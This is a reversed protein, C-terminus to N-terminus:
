VKGLLSYSTFSLGISVWAIFGYGGFIEYRSSFFGFGLGALITAANLGLSQFSDITARMSSDLRHHMYGTALPDVAGSFLFILIIVYLSSFNHVASIYFFGATFVFAVGLVLVRYSVRTKILQVLLNGPLRLFLTAASFLGFYVVPIGLRELYLQWFEDIFNLAAGTVMGSLVLLRVGSHNRFFRFAAKIYATIPILADSESKVSPEVLM